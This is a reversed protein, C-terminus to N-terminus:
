VDLGQPPSDPPILNIEANETIKDVNQRDPMQIGVNFHQVNKQCFHFFDFGIELSMPFM